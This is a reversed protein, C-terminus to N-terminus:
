AKDTYLFNNKVPKHNDWDIKLVYEIARKLNGLTTPKTIFLSAGMDWCKEIIDSSNTTSYVILPLDTLKGAQKIETIIEFGTKLPMNLDLFIVSPRPPPNQLIKFMDDPFLFLKVKKGLSAIAESFFDLDDQDDDIYFISGAFEDDREM